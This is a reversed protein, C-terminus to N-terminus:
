SIVVPRGVVRAMPRSSLLRAVARTDGLAEYAASVLDGLTLKQTVVNTKMKPANRRTTKSTKM